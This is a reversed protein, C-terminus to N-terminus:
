LDPRGTNQGNSRGSDGGLTVEQADLTIVRFHAIIQEIGFFAPDPELRHTAPLRTLM